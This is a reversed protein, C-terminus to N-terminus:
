SSQKGTIFGRIFGALSFFDGIAKAFPAFIIRWDKKIKYLRYTYHSLFLLVFPITLIQVKPIFISTYLAACTLENWYKLRFSRGYRRRVAGRAEAYQLRKRLYGLIGGRRFRHLHFVKMPSLLIKYGLKRARLCLDSDEGAVRFSKSDFIGARDFIERKYFTASDNVKGVFIAGRLQMGNGVTVYFMRNWMDYKKLVNKPTIRHSGVIGISDDKLFYSISKRLWHKSAPIIDGHLTCVVEYRSKKIGKNMSAALGLNRKNRLVKVKKFSSAVEYTNDKSDDDVVIMEIKAPYEQKLLSILTKKLIDGCNYAPIVISVNPFKVKPKASIKKSGM